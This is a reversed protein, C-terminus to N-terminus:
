CLGAIHVVEELRRLVRTRDIDGPVLSRANEVACALGLRIAEPITRKEVCGVAIGATLADGCGIPNIVDIEPPEFRHIEGDRHTALATDPGRTVLVWETGREHLRHMADLLESETSITVGLTRELEGRNPKVLLPARDLLELLEPGCVDAIVPVDLGDILGGLYSAPTGPALSGLFLVVSADAARQRFVERYRRLEDDTVTATNEVLETVTGTGRDVITTCTRSSSRTPVTFSTISEADLSRRISEGTVGGATTVACGVVDMCRLARAANLVKGSAM